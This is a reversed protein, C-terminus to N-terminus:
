LYVGAATGASSPVLKCELTPRQQEHTELDRRSRRTEHRVDKPHPIARADSRGCSLIHIQRVRNVELISCGAVRVSPQHRQLPSLEQCTWPAVRWYLSRRPENAVSVDSAATQCSTQVPVHLRCLEITKKSGYM